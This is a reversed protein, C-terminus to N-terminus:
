SEACSTFHQGKDNKRLFLTMTLMLTEVKVKSLLKVNFWRKTLHDQARGNNPEFSSVSHAARLAASPQFGAPHLSQMLGSNTM